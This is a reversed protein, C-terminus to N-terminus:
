YHWRSMIELVEAIADIETKPVKSEEADSDMGDVETSSSSKRKTVHPKKQTIETTM